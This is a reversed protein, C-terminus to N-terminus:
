GDSSRMAPVIPLPGKLDGDIVHLDTRCIGCASVKVLLDNGAPEPLTRAAARLASGACDLQMVKMMKTM